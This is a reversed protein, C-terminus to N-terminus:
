EQGEGANKEVFPKAILLFLVTAILSPMIFKGSGLLLLFLIGSVLGIVAPMHCKSGKWQEIFITVFLATMSFEIGPLDIAALHGTLAGALTGAIWYCHNLLAICFSAKKEDVGDPYECSCLVSYTEDTLSFVMYPFKRGMDRFKKLFPLGYFIHRSNIFLTTVAVTAISAGSALLGTLVFQLSGAYVVLSSLLAWVWNYGTQQFLIGFAYGLFLYGFMVPVTKRFCFKIM